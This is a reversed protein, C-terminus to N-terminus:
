AACSVVRSGNTGRVRHHDRKRPDRGSRAALTRDMRLISVSPEGDDIFIGVAALLEPSNLQRLGNLSTSGAPTWVPQTVALRCSPGLRILETGASTLAFHLEGSGTAAARLGVCYVATVSHASNVRTDPSAPTGVKGALVIGRDTRNTELGLEIKRLGGRNVSAAACNWLCTIGTVEVIKNDLGQGSIEFVLRDCSDDPATIEFALIQTEGVLLPMERPEARDFGAQGGTQKVGGATSGTTTQLVWQVLPSRDLEDVDHLTTEPPLGVLSCLRRLSDEAFPTSPRSSDALDSSSISRQFLRSWERPRRSASIRKIRDPLIAASSALADIQKGREVLVIAFDDSDYVTTIVALGSIAQSLQKALELTAPTLVGGEDDSFVAVWPPASCTTLRRAAVPSALSNAEAVVYGMSRLAQEVLQGSTEASSAEPRPLVHIETCTRGM